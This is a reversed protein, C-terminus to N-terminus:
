WKSKRDQIREVLWKLDSAHPAWVQNSLSGDENAKVRATQLLTVLKAELASGPELPMRVNTAANPQLRIEQFDPNGDFVPNRHHVFVQTSHGYPL